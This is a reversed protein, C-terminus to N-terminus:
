RGYLVCLEERLCVCGGVWVFVGVGECMCVCGCVRELMEQLILVAGGEEGKRRVEAGM